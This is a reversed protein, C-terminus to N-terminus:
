HTYSTHKGSKLVEVDVNKNLCEYDDSFFNILVFDSTLIYIILYFFLINCIFKGPYNDILSQMKKFLKAWLSSAKSDLLDERGKKGRISDHFDKFLFEEDNEDLLFQISLGFYLDFLISGRHNYVVPNQQTNTKNRDLNFQLVDYTETSTRITEYDIQCKLQNAAECCRAALQHLLKNLSFFNVGEASGEWLCLAALARIEDDSARDKADVLPKGEKRAQQVKLNHIHKYYKTWVRTNFCVLNDAHGKYKNLFYNKTASLYGIASSMSLLEGACNKTSKARAHLAFYTACEGFIAQDRLDEFVIEEFSNFKKFSDNDNASRKRHNILYIDFHRLASKEKEKRKTKGDNDLIDVLADLADDTIDDRNNTFSPAPSAVSELATSSQNASSSM